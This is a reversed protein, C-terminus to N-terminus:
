IMQLKQEASNESDLYDEFVSHIKLQIFNNWPHNAVLDLMTANVTTKVLEENIDAKKLAIISSLLEIARLKLIGLNQM